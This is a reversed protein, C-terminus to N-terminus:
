IAEVDVPGLFYSVLEIHLVQDLISSLPPPLTSPDLVM